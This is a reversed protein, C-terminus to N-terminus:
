KPYVFGGREANLVNLNKTYQEELKMWFGSPVGLAHELHTAIFPNIPEVGSLLNQTYEVSRCLKDALQQVTINDQEILEKITEGPPVAVKSLDVEKGCYYM